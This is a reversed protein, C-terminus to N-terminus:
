KVSVLTYNHINAYCKINSIVSEVEAKNNIHFKDTVTVIIGLKPLLKWMNFNSMSGKKRSCIELRTKASTRATPAFANLKSMLIGNESVKVTSSSTLRRNHLSCMANQYTLGLCKSSQFLLKCAEFAIPKNRFCHDNYQQGSYLCFQSFFGFFYILIMHM